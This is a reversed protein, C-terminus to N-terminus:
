PGFRRKQEACVGERVKQLEEASFSRLCSLYGEVKEESSYRASAALLAVLFSRPIRKLNREGRGGNFEHGSIQGQDWLKELFSDSVHLLGAASKLSWFQRDGLLWDFQLTAREAAKRVAPPLAVISSRTTMKPFAVPASLLAAM